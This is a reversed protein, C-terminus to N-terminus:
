PTSLTIERWQLVGGPNPSAPWRKSTYTQQACITSLGSAPKSSQAHKKYTKPQNQQTYLHFVEKYKGRFKFSSFYWYSLMNRQRRSHVVGLRLLQLSRSSRCRFVSTRRSEFTGISAVDGHSPKSLAGSRSLWNWHPLTNTLVVCHGRVLSHTALSLCRAAHWAVM